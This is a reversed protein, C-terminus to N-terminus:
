DYKSDYGYEGIWGKYGDPDSEMKSIVFDYYKVGADLWETNKTLEYNEVFVQMGNVAYWCFLEGDKNKLAPNNIMRDATQSPVAKIKVPVQGSASGTWAFTGILLLLLAITSTTKKM